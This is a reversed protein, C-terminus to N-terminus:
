RVSRIPPISWLVSFALRAIGGDEQIVRWASLLRHLLWLALATTLCIEWAEFGRHSMFLENTLPSPWM